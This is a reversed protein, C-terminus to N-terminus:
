LLILGLRTARVVADTRSQAGLKRFIANVHFKITHESVGLREAITKNPLGEALQQLVEIERATLQEIPYIDLGKSSPLIQTGFEPRLITLGRIVAQMAIILEDGDAERALMGQPRVGISQTRDSLLAIIPPSDESLWSADKRQDTAENEWGADWLLVDPQYIDLMRENLDQVPLSAVVACEARDELLASLGARALPDNAVILVRIPIDIM